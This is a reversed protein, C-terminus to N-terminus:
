GHKIVEYYSEINKLIVGERVIEHGVNFEKTKLMSLFESYHFSQIELTPHISLRNIITKVEKENDHIICLDIDSNKTEKGKAYSGFIVAIFFPNEISQIDDYLTKLKKTLKQKRIQEVECIINTFFPRFSLYSANGKKDISISESISQVADYTNKYDTKLIKSIKRISYQKEKNEILLKIISHKLNM